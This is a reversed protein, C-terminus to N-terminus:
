MEEPQELKVTRFGKQRQEPLLARSRIPEAPGPFGKHSIVYSRPTDMKTLKTHAMPFGEKKCLYVGESSIAGFLGPCPSATDLPPAGVVGAPTGIVATVADLNDAPDWRRSSPAVWEQDKPYAAEVFFQVYLERNKREIGGANQTALFSGIFADMDHDEDKALGTQNDL